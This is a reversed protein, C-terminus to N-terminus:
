ATANGDGRWALVVSSMELAKVLLANYQADNSADVLSIEADGREAFSACWGALVLQWTSLVSDGIEVWPIGARLGVIAEDAVREFDGPELRYSVHDMAVQFIEARLQEVAERLFAEEASNTLAPNASVNRMWALVGPSHVSMLPTWGLLDLGALHFAMRDRLPPHTNLAAVTSPPLYAAFAWAFSPGCLALAVADCLLESCWGFFREAWEIAAQSTLDLGSKQLHSLLLQETRGSDKNRLEALLKQNVASHAVEHALLPSLLANAPDLAPVNFAIPHPKTYESKAGLGRDLIRDLLDVLDVTSYNDDPDLNILPDGPTILVDAMLVGVLHQLGVPVDSRDIAQRYRSVVIHLIGLQPGLREFKRAANALIRTKPDGEPLSDAQTIASEILGVEAYFRELTHRTLTALHGGRGSPMEDAAASLRVLKAAVSARLIGLNDVM